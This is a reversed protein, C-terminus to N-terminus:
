LGMRELIQADSYSDLRESMRTGDVVFVMERLPALLEWMEDASVMGSCYYDGNDADECLRKLDRLSAYCQQLLPNSRNVEAQTTWKPIM